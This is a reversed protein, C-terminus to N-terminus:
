RPAEHELRRELWAVMAAFVAAREPDTHLEHQFGPWLKLTVRDAPAAAAFRVSGNPAAIADESGHLLLLPRPFRSANANALAVAELLALGWGATVRRHCLPDAVVSAPVAPDRSLQGLDLGSDLHTIPLLRGLLQALLRKGRQRAIASDLAASTAIVGALPPQRELTFALALVAGMSHGYLVQPREPWRRRLQELFAAIDEFYAALSPTHGRRGESRGFGRLDFGAVLHGANQLAAAVPALRELHSGLGHVLAIIAKPPDAPIWAKAHLRLGDPSTWTWTATTAIPM